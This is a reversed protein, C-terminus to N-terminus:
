IYGCACSVSLEDSICVFLVFVIYVRSSICWECVWKVRLLLVLCKWCLLMVYVFWVDVVFFM